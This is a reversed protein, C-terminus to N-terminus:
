SNKIGEVEKFHLSLVINKNRNTLHSIHGVLLICLMCNLTYNYLQGKLRVPDLFKMGSPEQVAGTLAEQTGKEEGSPERADVQLFVNVQRDKSRSGCVGTQRTKSVTRLSNCQFKNM